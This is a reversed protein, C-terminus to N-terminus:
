SSGVSGALRLDFGVLSRRELVGPHGYNELTPPDLRCGLKGAGPNERNFFVPPRPLPWSRLASTVQRAPQTRSHRLAPRERFVRMTQGAAAARAATELKAKACSALPRPEAADGAPTFGFHKSRWRPEGEKTRAEM